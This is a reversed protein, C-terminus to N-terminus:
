MCLPNLLSFCSVSHSYKHKCAHIETFVAFNNLGCFYHRWTFFFIYERVSFVSISLSFIDTLLSVVMFLSFKHERLNGRKEHLVGNTALTIKVKFFYTFCLTKHSLEICFVSMESNKCVLQLTLEPTM